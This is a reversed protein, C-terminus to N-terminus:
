YNMCFLTSKPEFSALIQRYENTHLFQLNNM